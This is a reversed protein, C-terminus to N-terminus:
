RGNAKDRWKRANVRELATILLWIFAILMWLSRNGNALSTAFMLANLAVFAWFAIELNRQTAISSEDARGSTTEDTM